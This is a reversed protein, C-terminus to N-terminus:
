FRPTQTPNRASDLITEKKRVRAAPKSSNALRYPVTADGEPRLGNRGGFVNGAPAPPETPPAPPQPQAASGARASARAERLLEEKMSKMEELFVSKMETLDERTAKVNNELKRMREDTDLVLADNYLMSSASRNSDLKAEFGGFISLKKEIKGGREIHDKEKKERYRQASVKVGRLLTLRCVWRRVKKYDDSEAANMIEKYRDASLCLLEVFTLALIPLTARLSEALM